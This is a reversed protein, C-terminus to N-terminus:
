RTLAYPLAQESIEWFEAYRCVGLVQMMSQFRTHNKYKMLTALVFFVSRYRGASCNFLILKDKSMAKDIFNWIEQKELMDTFNGDARDVFDIPEPYYEIGATREDEVIFGPRGFRIIYEIGHEKLNEPEKARPKSSFLINYGVHHIKKRGENVIQVSAAKEDADAALTEAKHSPPTGGDHTTQNVNSGQRSNTTSM